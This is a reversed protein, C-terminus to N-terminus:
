KPEHKAMGRSVIYGIVPMIAAVVTSPDLNIGVVDALITCVVTAVALYFESSKMGKTM